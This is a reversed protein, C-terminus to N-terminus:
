KDLKDKLAGGFEQGKEELELKEETKEKPAFEPYKEIFKRQGEKLGADYIKRLSVKKEDDTLQSYKKDFGEVYAMDNVYPAIINKREQGVLTELEAQQAKNLKIDNLNPQVAPPFFSIDGTRKVDDYLPRAFADKNVPTIGFIREIVNGEKQIKDGWISVKSPPYENVLYRIVSSRQLMSNKLEGLFSDAKTSTVYPVEARSMQAFTAPHFTNAMLNVLGTLYRRGEGSPNNIAGILASSNSFVGQGLEGLIEVEMGGFAADWFELQNKRQEPTLEEYNRAITNALSGFGGFWKNQILVGKKIKSPDEGRIWAQLKTINITGQPEYNQEGEREKKTEEGTNSPNFIGQNVLNLVVSRLAIGIAAHGLWYRAERIAQKHAVPDSNKFKLAKAGYMMSQLVALEPNVLNAYSWFANAPIKIYPSVFLSKAFNEFGGGKKLKFFESASNFAGNLLKNVLNDQQFTAREGERILTKEIYDAKEAAEADSFGKEKYLRYAEEKPFKIFIKYDMGKVGFANAFTAAQSGEAAFRFPKDGINLGRAIAEAFLGFSGELGKDIIQSFTLKSKGTFHSYLDKWARAPRISQVYLEKQMYDKRNLGTWFQFLAEKTGVGFKKFFELQNSLSISWEKEHNRGRVKNSLWAARDILSNVIGVPLRVFAQNAVNYTVNFVLTAAGLTNLQMLSTLRNVIDPKNYLMDNLERQSKAALMEADDFDKMSQPTREDSVRKAAAEVKNINDVLGKLKKGQAETMDGMGLADAVIKRFDEYELAGGEAMRKFLRRVVETKQKESLGKLRDKLKEIRNEIGKTSPTKVNKDKLKGLWENRFKDKNWSAGVEKSIYDVADEVIKAVSEGAKYAERMAKLATTIVKPPIITSYMAGGKEIKDIADNFFDEVKKIRNERAKAREAKMGTEVEEAFIKAAEPDKKVEDFFDKWSQEKPKAWEDFAEKRKTNEAIEIGLPSKKYFYDIMSIDRGKERSAEDFRISVEAYKKAIEHKSAVDTASLEMDHLQNLSEAFIASSVGGKMRGSEALTIAEDVGYQDVIEKAVKAADDRSEVKYKLGQERFKQKVSEPINKANVLRNLIGKDSFRERESEKAGEVETPTKPPEKIGGDGQETTAQESIPEEEVPKGEVEGVAEGTTAKIPESLEPKEGGAEIDSETPQEYEIGKENLLDNEQSENEMERAMDKLWVEIEAEPMAEVQEISKQEANELGKEGINRMEDFYDRISVSETRQGDRIEVNGKEVMGEIANLLLNAGKSPVGNKIDSIANKLQNKNMRKGDAGVVDNPIILEPDINYKESLDNIEGFLDKAGQSREELPKHNDDIALNSNSKDVYKANKTYIFQKNVNFPIGLREAEAKLRNREKLGDITGKGLRGNRLENYKRVDELFKNVEAQRGEAPAYQKRRKEVEKNIDFPKVKKPKPETVPITPTITTPEIKAEIESEPIETTPETAVEETRGAEVKPMTVTIGNVTKTEGGGQETETKEPMIVSIGAKPVIEKIPEEKIEPIEKGNLIDEQVKESERAADIHKRKLVQDPTSKAADNAYKSKMAEVLYRPHKNEPVGSKTLEIKTKNLFDIDELKKQLEERDFHGSLKDSLISQFRTPNRAIMDLAKGAANINGISSIFNTFGGGIAMSKAVDLIERNPDHHIRSSIEIPLFTQDALIKGATLSGMHYAGEFASGLSTKLIGFVKSLGNKEIEERSMYKLADGVEGKVKGALNDAIKGGPFAKHAFMYAMTTAFAGLNAANPNEPYKTLWENRENDFVSSGLIVANAAESSLGLGKLPMGGVAMGGVMGIFNALGLIDSKTTSMPVNVASSEDKISEKIVDEASPAFGLLDKMTNYSGSFVGGFGKSLETGVSPKSLKGQWNGKLNEDILKKLKPNNAFIEDAIKDNINNDYPSDPNWFLNNYGRLERERSVEREAYKLAWDPYKEYIGGNSLYDFEKKLAPNSVIAEKTNPDNIVNFLSEAVVNEDELLNKYTDSALGTIGRKFLTPDKEYAEKEFGMLRNPDFQPYKEKELFSVKRDFVPDFKRRMQIAFHELNPSKAAEDIRSAFQEAKKMAVNVTENKQPLVGGNKDSLKQLFNVADIEKPFMANSILDHAKELAKLSNDRNEKLRYQFDAQKNIQTRDGYNAQKTSEAVARNTAGFDFFDKQAKNAEDRLPQAIFNIPDSIMTGVNAISKIKDGQPVVTKGVNELLLDITEETSHAELEGFKAGVSSGLGGVKKKVDLFSFGDKFANPLDQPDIEYSEKTKSNGVIIKETPLYGDNVAAQLDSDQIELIESGKKVRIAKSM